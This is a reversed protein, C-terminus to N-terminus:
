KLSNTDFYFGLLAQLVTTKIMDICIQLHYRYSHM